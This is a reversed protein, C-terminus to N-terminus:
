GIKVVKVFEETRKTNLEALEDKTLIRADIHLEYPQFFRSQPVYRVTFEGGISLTKIKLPKELEIKNKIIIEKENFSVSRKYTIPVEKCSIMLKKRIMRSLFHSFRTSFKALLLTSRFILSKVLDFVAMSPVMYLRGDIEWGNEGSKINRNYDTWQSTILGGSDLWGILGCDNYILKGEKKDFIKIVGGKALNAIQYYHSTNKVYIKSETFFKMFPERMYPIDPLESSDPVYDLYALLYEPVRFAVYRDSMIDPPVLKGESLSKLMVEAVAGSVPITKSMLEFGHPYFHMTDRSGISGGYFGDPYVFYSCIEISQQLIHFIEPDRNKHYLKALFSITATLYGPDIGDAETAWGENTQFRLFGEWLERYGKKLQQTDFLEYACWVALCAIAHHNAISEDKQQFNIIFNAANHIMSLIRDRTEPAVDEHLLELSEIASYTIYATPGAWGRQYPYFEDFSGDTHQIKTLFELGAIAWEKIRENGYYISHPLEYKYVIALAHVAFQRVGDPFDSTKYFWYDRHMCGYTPSFMNRDMNGLIRPIQSLAKQAYTDRLSQIRKM